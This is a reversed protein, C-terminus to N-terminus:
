RWLTQKTEQLVYSGARTKTEKAAEQTTKPKAENPKGGHIADWSAMLSYTATNKRSTMPHERAGVPETRSQTSEKPLTKGIVTDMSNLPM